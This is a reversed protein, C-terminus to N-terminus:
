NKLKKTGDKATYTLTGVKTGSNPKFDVNQPLNISTMIEGTDAMGSDYHLQYDFNLKTGNYVTSKAKNNNKDYDEIVRDSSVDTMTVSSTVNAVMPMNEFVMEIDKQASGSSGTAATFGWMAKGSTAKANLASLDITGFWQEM